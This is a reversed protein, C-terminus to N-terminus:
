ATSITDPAMGAAVIAQAIRVVADFDQPVIPKVGGGAKMAMLARNDPNERPDIETQKNM